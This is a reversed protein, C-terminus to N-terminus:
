HPVIHWRGMSDYYGSAPTNISDFLWNKLVTYATDSSKAKQHLYAFAADVSILRVMVGKNSGRLHNYVTPSDELESIISEPFLGLKGAIEEIAVYCNIPNLRYVTFM